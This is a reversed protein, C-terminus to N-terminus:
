ILRPEGTTYIFSLPDTFFPTSPWIFDAGTDEDADERPQTENMVGNRNNISDIKRQADRKISDARREREAEKEREQLAKLRENLERKETEIDSGNGTESGTQAPTKDQQMITRENVNWNPENFMDWKRKWKREWKNSNRNSFNTFYDEVSEDILYSAGKPVLLTLTIHQARFKSPKYITFYRDLALVSDKQEFGYRISEAYAEASAENKGFSKKKILLHYNADPSQEVFLNIFSAQISDSTLRELGGYQIWRHTKVNQEKVVVKLFNGSPRVLDHKVEPYASTSFDRSITAAFFVASVFGFSWLFIFLATLSRNRRSKNAKRVIWIIISLLPVVLFFIFTSWGFFTQWFGDLFFNSFPILGVGSTLLAVLAILLSFAIIGGIFLFFAKFILAIINGVSHGVSRSGSAARSGFEKGKESVERGWREARQSFNKMEEQINSKISNLNVKEGRMAMKESVTGAEPIVLWLIIYAMLTTGGFSGTFIFGPGWWDHSIARFLAAIISIIFPFAFILRPIWVDIGFYSAIGGCVGGIMRDDPNRFLRREVTTQVKREPVFIWLLIYLLVGTGGAFVLIAWIIRVLSVDINFYAAIGSCVGGIVQDDANRYLRGRKVQTGGTSGSTTNGAGSTNNEPNDDFDEPRGISAMVEEVDTETIVTAGKKQKDAFIEAIRNEIDSIIEDRGEEGAFHQKLSDIYQQLRAWADEEINILRGGLNMNIVKKM